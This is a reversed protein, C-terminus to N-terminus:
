WNILLNFFCSVFRHESKRLDKCLFKFKEEIKAQNTKEDSKLQNQLKSVVGFCVLNLSFQLTLEFLGGITHFHFKGECDKEVLSLAFSVFFVIILFLYTVWSKLDPNIM